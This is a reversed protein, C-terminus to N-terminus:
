RILLLEGKLIYMTNYGNNKIFAIAIKCCKVKNRADNECVVVYRNVCM